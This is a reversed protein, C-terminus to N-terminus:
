FTTLFLFSYYKWIEWLSKKEPASALDEKNGKKFILFFIVPIYSSQLLTNTEATYHLSEGVPMCINDGGERLPRGGM